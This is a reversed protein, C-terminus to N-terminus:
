YTSGTTPLGRPKLIDIKPSQPILETASEQGILREVHNRTAVIAARDEEAFVVVRLVAAPERLGRITM